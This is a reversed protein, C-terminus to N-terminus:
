LARGSAQMYAMKAEIAADLDIGYHAAMAEVGYLLAGLRAGWMRVTLTSQVHFVEGLMYHLITTWDGFSRPQWRAEIRELSAGDAVWQTLCSGHHGALAAVRIVVEALASAVGVPKPSPHFELASDLDPRVVVEIGAELGHTRYAKRSESLASHIDAIGDGFTSGAEYWGLELAIAHAQQQLTKFEM